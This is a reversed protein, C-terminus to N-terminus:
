AHPDLLPARKVIGSKGGVWVWGDHYTVCNVTTLGHNTYGPPLPLPPDTSDAGWTTEATWDVDTIPDWSSGDVTEYTELGGVSNQVRVKGDVFRFAKFRAFGDRGLGRLTETWVGPADERWVSGYGTSGPNYAEGISVADRSGCVHIKGGIKAVDFTHVMSTGPGVKVDTWTGTRDTTLGGQNGVTPDTWPLYAHGDIIRVRDWAETPADNHLTVPANGNDLDYGIIDVPGLNDNWDGYGILMTGNHPRLFRIRQHEATAKAMVTPHPPVTEWVLPVSNRIGALLVGPLNTTGWFGVAM